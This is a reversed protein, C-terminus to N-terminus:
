ISLGAEAGESIAEYIRAAQRCDGVEYLQHIKGKLSEFLSREALSGTAVIIDDAELFIKRGRKDTIEMGRDTIREITVGSYAAIGRERLREIMMEAYSYYLESALTPLIETIVVEKGKENLFEATECGVFGGGIV